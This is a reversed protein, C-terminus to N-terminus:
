LKIKQHAWLMNESFWYFWDGFYVVTKIQQQTRATWLWDGNENSFTMVGLTEEPLFFQSEDPAFSMTAESVHSLKKQIEFELTESNIRYWTFDQSLLIIKGSKLIQWDLLDMPLPQQVPLALSPLLLRSIIKEGKQDKFIAVASIEPRTDSPATTVLQPSNEPKWQELASWHHPVTQTTKGTTEDLFHWKGSRNAVQPEFVIWKGAATFAPTVSYIDPRKWFLEGTKEHLLWAGSNGASVLLTHTDPKFTMGGLRSNPFTRQWVATPNQLNICTIRLAEQEENKDLIFLRHQHHHVQVLHHINLPISFHNIGKYADFGRLTGQTDLVFIKNEYLALFHSFTFPLHMKYRFKSPYLKTWEVDKEQPESELIPNQIPESYETTVLQDFPVLKSADPNFRKLLIPAVSTAFGLFLCSLTVSLILSRYKRLIRHILPHRFSTLAMAGLVSIFFFLWSVIAYISIGWM